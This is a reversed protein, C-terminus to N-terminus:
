PKFNDIRTGRAQEKCGENKSTLDIFLMMLRDGLILGVM